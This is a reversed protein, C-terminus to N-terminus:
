DLVENVDKEIKSLRWLSDDIADDIKDAIYALCMEKAKVINGAVCEYEPIDLQFCYHGKSLDIKM